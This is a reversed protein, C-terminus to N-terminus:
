AREDADNTTTMRTGSLTAHHVEATLEAILALAAPM